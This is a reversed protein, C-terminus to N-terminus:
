EDIKTAAAMTMRSPRLRSSRTLGALFFSTVSTSSGYDGWIQVQGPAANRLPHPTKQKVISEQGPMTSSQAQAQQLLRILSRPAAM